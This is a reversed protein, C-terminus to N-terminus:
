FLRTSALDAGARLSRLKEWAVDAAVLGFGAATDFGCDTCALVRSPDGVATVVREIRDAIVEPHEVYNTTTDVVGAAVLWHDPPPQRALERHEHAHRPNALSLLLGGVHAQYLHALLEALEVDATHPGGYNGWCVHLRIREAALGQTAQNISAVVADVFGLFEDLPRGAFSCHREMALDPADIQLVFGADLIRRYEVSLADAVAALYGEQTDYHRNAMGAAVIGPSPATLFLEAFPRGDAAAALRASDADVAETSGYRLPGTAVPPKLLSVQDEGDRQAARIRAFDPFDALDQWHRAATQDSSASFGDIRHQVYTFFSERGQEGDNAVDIGVEAQRTVVGTVALDVQRALEDTDVPRRRNLAALLRTLSPPRPLSGAHTTLFRGDSRQV